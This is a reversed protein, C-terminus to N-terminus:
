NRCDIRGGFMQLHVIAYTCVYINSIMFHIIVIQNDVFTCFRAYTYIYTRKNISEAFLAIYICMTYSDCKASM